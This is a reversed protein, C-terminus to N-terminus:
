LQGRVQLWCSKHHGTWNTHAQPVQPWWTLSGEVLYNSSPWTTEEMRGTPICNLYKQCRTVM